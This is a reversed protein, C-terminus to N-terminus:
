SVAGIRRWFDHAMDQTPILGFQRVYGCLLGIVRPIRAAAWRGNQRKRDCAGCARIFNKGLPYVRDYAHGRPCHTQRAHKASPSLAGPALINEKPTCARLHSPNVCARNRCLHDLVLGNPVKSGGVNEFSWRHASTSKRNVTLRGYGGASIYGRWVWCGGESKEVFSWFREAVTKRSM